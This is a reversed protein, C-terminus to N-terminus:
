QNIHPKDAATNIWMQTHKCFIKEKYKYEKKVSFYSHIKSLLKDMGFIDLLRYFGHLVTEGAMIVPRNFKELSEVSLFPLLKHGLVSSREIYYDDTEALTGDVDFVILKINELDM